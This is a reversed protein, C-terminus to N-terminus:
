DTMETVRLAGTPAAEWIADIPGTYAPYPMTFFGTPYLRVTYSSTSATAGFKLFCSKDADNYFTAARRDPNAALVATSIGTALVSTVSSQTPRVEAGVGTVEGDWPVFSLTGTDYVAIVRYQDLIPPM